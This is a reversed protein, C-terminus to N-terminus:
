ESAGLLSSPPRITGAVFIYNLRYVSQLITSRVLHGAGLITAFTLDGFHRTKGALEGQVFWERLPQSRFKAQLTWELDLTMRNNGVQHRLTLLINSTTGFHSHPRVWNCVWDNEGVYILVRVGRELLAELYHEARFNWFDGGTEFQKFIEGNSHSFNAHRPDVGLAAQTSPNNM